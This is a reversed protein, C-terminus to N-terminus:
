KSTVTLLIQIRHYLYSPLCSYGKVHSVMVEKKECVVETQLGRTCHLDKRQELHLFCCSSCVKWTQCKILYKGSTPYCNKLKTM